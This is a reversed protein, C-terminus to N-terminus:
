MRASLERKRKGRGGGGGPRQSSSTLFEYLDRLSRAFPDVPVPTDKAGEDQRCLSIAADHFRPYLGLSECFILASSKIRLAPGPPLFFLFFITWRRECRVRTSILHRTIAFTCICHDREFRISPSHKHFRSLFFFIFNAFRCYLSQFSCSRIAYLLIRM